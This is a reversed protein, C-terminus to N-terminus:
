KTQLNERIKSVMPLLFTRLSFFSKMKRLDDEIRTECAALEMEVDRMCERLQRSTTIRSYDNKEM